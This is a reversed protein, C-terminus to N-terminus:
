EALDGLMKSLSSEPITIIRGVKRYAIQGSAIKKRITAVAYGSRDAYEAVRMHRETKQAM